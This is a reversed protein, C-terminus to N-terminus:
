LRSVAQRYAVLVAEDTRVMGVREFRRFLALAFPHIDFGLVRILDRIRLLGVLLFHVRLCVGVVRLLFEGLVDLGGGGLAVLLKRRDAAVVVGQEGRM